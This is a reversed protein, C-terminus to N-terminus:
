LFVVSMRDGNAPSKNLPILYITVFGPIVPTQGSVVAYLRIDNTGDLNTARLSIDPM